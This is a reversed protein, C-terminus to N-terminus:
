GGAQLTQLLQREQVRRRYYPRAFYVEDASLSTLVSRSVARTAHSGATSRERQCQRGSLLQELAREGLHRKCSAPLSAPLAALSYLVIALVVTFRKTM